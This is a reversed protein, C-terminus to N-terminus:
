CCCRERCLRPIGSGDNKGSWVDADKFIAETRWIYVGQPMQEGKVNCGDWGESPKEDKLAQIEGIKNYYQDFIKLKYRILGMGIGNFRSVKEQQSHPLFTNPFYLGKLLVEHEM